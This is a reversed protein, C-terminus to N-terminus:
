SRTMAATAAGAPYLGAAASGAGARKGGKRAPDVRDPVPCRGERFTMGAGGPAADRTRPTM